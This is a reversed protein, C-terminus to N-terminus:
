HFVCRGWRCVPDDMECRYWEPCIIPGTEEGEFYEEECIVNIGISEGGAQCGCTGPDSPVGICDEDAWCSRYDTECDPTGCSGLFAWLFYTM